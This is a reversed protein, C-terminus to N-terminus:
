VLFVENLEFVLGVVVGGFDFGKPPAAVQRPPQM